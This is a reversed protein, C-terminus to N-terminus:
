IIQLLQILKQNGFYFQFSQPEKSLAYYLLSNQLLEIGNNKILLNNIELDASLVTFGSAGAYIAVFQELSPQHLKQQMLSVIHLYSTAEM